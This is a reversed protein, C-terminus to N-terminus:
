NAAKVPVKMRVVTGNGNRSTVELTGGALRARERMGLLGYHGAQGETAAPDFGIGDDAVRLELGGDACRLSVQVQSARAHRAINTLAEAVVRRVPECCEDALGSPLEIDLQCPIGTAATFRQTEERLATGLDRAEPADQRLDGIARRADALTARAQLMAQRVIASSREVRGQELHAEVAELQLIVGALGQSLTDHLERAMRQRENALTLEEVRDAYDALRRHALELEGLLGQARERAENQRNYLAVYIIVFITMPIVAVAWWTVQGGSTEMTYSLLSLGLYFTVAGLGWRTLGLLGVSIGVLGMYLGFIQALNNGILNIALALGGQVVLYGLTWTRNKAVFVALWYLTIHVLMLVCFPILRIPERLGPSDIISWIAVGTMTFTLFIFFPLQFAAEKGFLASPSIKKMIQITACTAIKVMTRLAVTWVSV